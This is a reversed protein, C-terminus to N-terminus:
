NKVLTVQAVWIRGSRFGGECYMLYYRWLDIFQADFGAGIRREAVALDFRDRWQKLTEAYDAGFRDVDRWDLGREAALAAFRSESILCGGPFVHTQIFDASAAYADFLADDIAIYQIAARGGPRLRAAIVDLYAPWYRQGVAEVMEISAIADYQGDVDRYDVLDIAAHGSAIPQALAGRAVDAQAPSLTIGRYLADHREVARVGLAGWGCGIELLRAGSHLDLRDLAADIKAVQAAELSLGPEAFRASSYVMHDDLWSAYFDNGLDYHAMINRRSGARSNRRLAHLMRAIWRSPGRARATDGLATANRMIVDFLAVPDPSAWEGRAWADYWGVSGSAALRLMARWEHLHVVVHPGDGRGGLLRVTGDPLHGEISGVSLGADVRDLLRHFLRSPAWSLLRATLRGSRAGAGDPRLLHRGRRSGTHVNM